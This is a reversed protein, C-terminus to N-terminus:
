FLGDSRYICLLSCCQHQCMAGGNYPVGVIEAMIFAAAGMVPPMYQGGTSAAAVVAGSFEPKYGLRKMLPITFSGTAFVNAVSSGSLTGFLACSLVAM